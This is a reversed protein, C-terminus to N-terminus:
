CSLFSSNFKPELVLSMFFFSALELDYLSCRDVELLATVRHGRVTGQYPATPLLLGSVSADFEM